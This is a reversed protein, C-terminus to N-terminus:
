DIPLVKSVFITFSRLASWQLNNIEFSTKLCCTNIILEFVVGSDQWVHGRGTGGVGRGRGGNELFGSSMMLSASRWALGRRVRRCWLVESSKLSFRFLRKVWAPVGGSTYALQEGIEWGVSWGFVGSEGDREGRCDVVLCVETVENEVVNREFVDCM